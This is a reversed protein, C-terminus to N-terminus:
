TRDQMWLAGRAVALVRQAPLVESPVGRVESPVVRVESPVAAVEWPAAAVEAAQM